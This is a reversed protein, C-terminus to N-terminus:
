EHDAVTTRPGSGQAGAPLLREVIPRIWAALAEPDDPGRVLATLV